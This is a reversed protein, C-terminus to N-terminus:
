VFEGGGGGGPGAFNGGMNDGRMTEPLLVETKFKGMREARLERGEARRERRRRLWERM